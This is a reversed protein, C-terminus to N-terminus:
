RGRGKKRPKEEGDAKGDLQRHWAKIDDHTIRIRRLVKAPGSRRRDTLTGIFSQGDDAFSTCELTVFEGDVPWRFDRRIHMRTGTKNEPDRVIFPKRGRWREFSQCFSTNAVGREGHLALGCAESYDGEGASHGYDQALEAVDGPDFRMGSTIALTLVRQDTHDRQINSLDWQEGRTNRVHRFLELPPSYKRTIRLTNGPEPEAWYRWVLGDEGTVQLELRYREAAKTGRWAAKAYDHAATSADKAEVVADPKAGWVHKVKFEMTTTESAVM